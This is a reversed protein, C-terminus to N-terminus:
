DMEAEPLVGDVTVYPRFYACIQPTLTEQYLVLTQLPYGNKTREEIVEHLVEMRIDHLITLKRLQPFAPPGPSEETPRRCRLGDLFDDSAANIITLQTIASMARLFGPSPLSTKVNLLELSKLSPYRSEPRM